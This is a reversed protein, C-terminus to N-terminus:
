TIKGNNNRTKEIRKELFREKGNIGVPCVSECKGCLFCHYALKEVQTEDGIDMQYKDLFACHRTCAGCHICEETM